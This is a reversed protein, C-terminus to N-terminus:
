AALVQEYMALLGRQMAEISFKDRALRVANRAMTTRLGEDALQRMGDALSTATDEVVMGAHHDTVERHIAVGRTVIVPLGAGLAEVAAIGFNENISPLVFVHSQEFLAVKAAGSVYGPWSVADAIRLRSALERLQSAYSAAGGGAILLRVDPRAKRVEAFAELLLEIRKKPHLRSLFLFTLPAASPAASVALPQVGLPVVMSRWRGLREAEEREAESTFHVAAAKLLVNKEFLSWSLQKLLTHQAMGYRALTGLPRVIYPIRNSRALAACVSTSFSFLAHTHAIDYNRINGRLWRALGTSTTYPHATREFYWYRVGNENVPVGVPVNLLESDNDNTTAVDVAVGADRLARAMVGMAISPGGRLPGISPIVHLIRM